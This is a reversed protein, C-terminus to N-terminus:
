MPVPGREFGGKQSKLSHPWGAELRGGRLSTISARRKGRAPVWGAVEVVGGGPM